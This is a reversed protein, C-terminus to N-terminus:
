LPLCAETLGALQCCGVTNNSPDRSVDKTFNLQRSVVPNPTRFVLRATPPWAGHQNVAEVRVENHQVSELIFPSHVM